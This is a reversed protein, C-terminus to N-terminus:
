GSAALRERLRALVFRAEDLFRPIDSVVSLATAEDYSQSTRGRMERFARWVPWDGGVLGQDSAARILDQFPATQMTGPTAAAQELYRRLMKHSLEYTFEFRQILGDRIQTDSPDSRYRELGEELRGVANEFASIDLM